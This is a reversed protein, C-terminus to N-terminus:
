GRYEEPSMGCLKKFLKSFYATNPYGVREAVEYVKVNKEKLMHKAKEMRLRTLFSVFNEGTEQKFVRSLYSANVNIRDAVSQLSIDEAYLQMILESAQEAYSRSSERGSMQARCRKLYDAVTQHLGELSEEHLISEYVTLGAENPEPLAPFCSLIATLMRIYISRATQKTCGELLIKDKLSNLFAIAGESGSETDQRFKRMASRDISLQDGSRQRSRTKDYFSLGTGSEFFLADLATDAEQYARKLGDFGPAPGSVGISMTLKLFDKMATQIKAVAREIDGRVIRGEQGLDLLLVYEASNMVIIEKARKRPLIEELINAVSYRLLKEDQEVYKRRLQEFHNIRLKMLVMPEDTLSIRLSERSTLVDGASKFGSILEKFLTEKLYEISEKYSGPPMEGSRSRSLHVARKRVIDLVRRLQAPKMDSKILYDTAGLRVAEQAYRFEELCSLIVFQGGMDMRRAERILELGDMVPMKIDTIILDPLYTGALELAERGNAAEGLVTFGEDEWQIISKLGIRMLLEDDVILVGLMSM